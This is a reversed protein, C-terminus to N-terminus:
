GRACFPSRRSEFRDLINHAISCSVAEAGGLRRYKLNTCLGHNFSRHIRGPMDKSPLDEDRNVINAVFRDLGLLFCFRNHKRRLPM